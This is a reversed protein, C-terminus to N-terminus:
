NYIKTHCSECLQGAGEIYNSRTYISDTNNQPTEVDCSVCNDKKGEM